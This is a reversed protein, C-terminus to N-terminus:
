PSKRTRNIKLNIEKMQDRLQKNRNRVLKLNREKAKAKDLREEESINEVVIISIINQNRVGHRFEEDDIVEEVTFERSKVKIVEGPDPLEPKNWRGLNECVLEDDTLKNLVQVFKKRRVPKERNQM